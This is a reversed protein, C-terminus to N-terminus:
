RDRDFPVASGDRRDTVIISARPNRQRHFRAAYIATERLDRLTRVVDNVKIKFRAGLTATAMRGM